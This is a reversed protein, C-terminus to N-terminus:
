EKMLFELAYQLGKPISDSNGATEGDIGYLKTINGNTDVKRVVHHNPDAFYLNGYRDFTMHSPFNLVQALLQEVMVLM